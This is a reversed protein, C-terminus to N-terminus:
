TDVHDSAVQGHDRLVQREIQGQENLYFALYGSIVALISRIM